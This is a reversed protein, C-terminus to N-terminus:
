VILPHTLVAKEPSAPALLNPKIVVRSGKNILPSGVSEILEFIVPKLTKYNYEAKRVYVISM